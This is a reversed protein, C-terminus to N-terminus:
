ESPENVLLVPLFWTLTLIVSAVVLNVIVNLWSVALHPYRGSRFNEYVVADGQVVSARILIVGKGKAFAVASLPWGRSPEFGSAFSAQEEFRFMGADPLTNLTVIFALILFSLGARMEKFRM